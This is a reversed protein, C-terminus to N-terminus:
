FEPLRETVPIWRTELEQIKPLIDELHGIAEDQESSKVISELM